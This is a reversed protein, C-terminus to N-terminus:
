LKRASATYALEIKEIAVSNREAAFPDVSWQSPFAAQFSWGRLPKGDQDRLYLTLDRTKIPQALGNELVDRCWQVLQSDYDAIGRKLTLKPHRVGKPLAYVFRNEGGEQYADTEMQAGVGAAEQFSADSKGWGGTFTVAFHFAVPPYIFSM